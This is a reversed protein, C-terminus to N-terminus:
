MSIPLDTAVLAMLCRSSIMRLGGHPRRVSSGYYHSESPVSTEDASVVAHLVASHPFNPDKPHLHM